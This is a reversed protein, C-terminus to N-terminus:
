QDRLELKIQELRQMTEETVQSNSATSIEPNGFCKFCDMSRMIAEQWLSQPNEADAIM